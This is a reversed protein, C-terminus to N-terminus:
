QDSPEPRDRGFAQHHGRPQEALVTVEAILTTSPPIVGAIGREGYAMHPALELRRTGGVRMGELGYFLGNIVSARNLRMDTLLTAGNDELRPIEVPGWEQPWRVPQGDQLSLRLRVRYTQQRRVTDGTGPFDGLLMLGSRLRQRLPRGRRALIAAADGLGASQAMDLPSECEDIRTRLDPDAGADLLLQIAFLRRLAVAMHLATYDNLGRQDPNAGFSLLLRLVDDVDPRPTAGLADQGSSLAAHLPPFADAAPANPDAGLELLTRIFPIPSHYLRLRPM